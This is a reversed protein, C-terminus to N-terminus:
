TRLSGSDSLFWKRRGPIDATDLSSADLIDFTAGQEDMGTQRLVMKVRYTKGVQWSKAEPLIEFPIIM